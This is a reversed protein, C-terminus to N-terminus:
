CRQPGDREAWETLEVVIGSSGPELQPRVRQAHDACSRQRAPTLVRGTQREAAEDARVPRWADGVVAGVRPDEFGRGRLPDEAKGRKAPAEEHEEAEDQPM